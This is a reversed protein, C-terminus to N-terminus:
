RTTMAVSFSLWVDHIGLEQFNQHTGHGLTREDVVLLALLEHGLRRTKGVGDAIANRHHELVLRALERRLFAFLACACTLAFAATGGNTASMGARYAELRKGPLGSTSMAPLGITTRTACRARSAPARSTITAVSSTRMRSATAACPTSTHM